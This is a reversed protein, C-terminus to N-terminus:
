MFIQFKFLALTFQAWFCFFRRSEEEKRPVQVLSRHNKRLFHQTDNFTERSVCQDRETGQFPKKNKGNSVSTHIYIFQSITAKCDTNTKTTFSSECISVYIGEKKTRGRVGSQGMRGMQTVVSRQWGSNKTCFM